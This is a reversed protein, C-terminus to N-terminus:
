EKSLNGGWKYKINKFISIKRFPNNEKFDIPKVDNKNIWGKAFRLFKKKNETVKIKSGFSIESIKGRKNPLRFVSSKLVNVKHTPKFFKPFKKNKIFGNYGDEKVKIKLWKKGRKTISFSDGYIMQTVVESKISPKKHLNIVTFNNTFYKTM